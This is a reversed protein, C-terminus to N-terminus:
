MNRCANASVGYSAIIVLLSGTKKINDIRIVVRPTSGTRGGTAMFDVLKSLRRRSASGLLQRSRLHLYFGRSRQIAAQTMRAYRLSLHSVFFSPPPAFAPECEYCIGLSQYCVYGTPTITTKKREGAEETPWIIAM